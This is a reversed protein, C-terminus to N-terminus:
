ININLEMGFYPTASRRIIAGYSTYDPMFNLLQNIFMAATLRNKFLKKTVKLNTTMYFPEYAWRFANENYNNILTKLYPDKASEETFPLINGDVGFYSDPMRSRATNRQRNFWTCQFTFSFGLGLKPIDTDIIFNTNYMERLYHSDENYIGIYMVRKGNIINGSYYWIPDSNSYESWFWAGTATIRTRISEIRKSSFTLEVGRKFTRSSNTTQSWGCMVTDLTFPINELEPPGSLASEDIVTSDYKKRTYGAYRDSSRFGSKMDEQFYTLSLRNGNLSVDTRVEWKMNRAAELFHNAPDKIYTVMNVRRFEPNEDNYYNLQTLDFYVPAPYLQEMTPAMSHQGIGASVSSSLHRGGIKADPFSYKLNLRPDTYIRGHMRYEKGINLLTMIRIGAMAELKGAGLNWNLNEEAFLAAENTAPIIYYPWPRTGNGSFLPRTIDFVQGKGYNKEFSWEAGATLNHRCRKGEAEFRATIKATLNLPKGDVAMEAIYSSPIYIGDYEGPVMTAPASTTKDRSVYKRRDIRDKSFDGTIGIEASKFFGKGNSNMDAFINMAMRNYSSRFEDQNGNNLEPDQKSNDFSGTYDINIGASFVNEPHTNWTKHIRFSGTARKYNELKNRPDPLANLIDAGINICINKEPLEFGKGAYALQSSMDAKFRASFDNGGRKRTIKVLGSTLDGYEASPIGRIIEVQEIEDTSISRMDVGKNVFSKRESSSDYYSSGSIYQMNAGTKVPAGDVIFSTGLSSTSYDDSSIGIERIHITNPIGLSPAVSKGGPLLATIDAFSSPQLHEMAKRGIRSSSSIAESETATIVTETIKEMHEKLIINEWVSEGERLSINTFYPIYGMNAATLMYNGSPVSFIATGTEDTMGTFFSEGSTEKIAVAIFPLPTDLTDSVTIIIEGNKSDKGPENKDRNWGSAILTLILYITMTKM